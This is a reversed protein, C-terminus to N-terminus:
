SLIVGDVIVHCVHVGKPGLERALSQALARLGFKPVALAAFNAAGRLSATAGTFLMTGRGAAVMRKGAAQALHLAGLVTVRWAQELAAPDLELVGGRAFAGANHAIVAPTGAREVLADVQARDTADCAVPTIATGAALKEIEGTSRAAAFVAHGANAFA